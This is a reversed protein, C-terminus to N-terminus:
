QSRLTAIEHGVALSCRGSLDPSAIGFPPLIGHLAKTDTETM